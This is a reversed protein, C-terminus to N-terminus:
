LILYKKKLLVNKKYENWLFNEQVTKYDQIVKKGKELYASHKSNVPIEAVANIQPRLKTTAIINIKNNSYNQKIYLDFNEKKILNLLNSKEKEISQAPKKSLKNIVFLRGNFNQASINQAKM